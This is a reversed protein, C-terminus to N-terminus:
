STQERRLLGQREAPREGLAHLDNTHAGGQGVEAEQGAPQTCLEVLRVVPGHGQLLVEFHAAVDVVLAESHDPPESRREVNLYSPSNSRRGINQSSHCLRTHDM